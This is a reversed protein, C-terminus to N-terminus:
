TQRLIIPIVIAIMSGFTILATTIFTGLLWRFVSDIKTDLKTISNELKTDLKDIRSDLKADLKDLKVGLESQEKDIIKRVETKTPFEYVTRLQEAIYTLPINNYMKDEM